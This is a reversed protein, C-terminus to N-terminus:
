LSEELRISIRLGCASCSSEGIDISQSSPVATITAAQLVGPLCLLAFALAVLLATPRQAKWAQDRNM